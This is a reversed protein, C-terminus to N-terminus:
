ALTIAAHSNELRLLYYGNGMEEYTAGQAGTIASDTRLCFSQGRAAGDCDLYLRDGDRRWTYNLDEYSFVANQTNSLTKPQLYEVRSLVDTEFIGIQAKDQDWAATEEDLAIFRNVDFVHSVMGYASLVSAIEFLNGEEMRNGFTAGPFFFRDGDWHLANDDSLLGRVATINVGPLATLEEAFATGNMLTLGNIDYQTFTERFRALLNDNYLLSEGDRCDAAYVLEGEYQLASKGITNFLNDDIPPFGGEGSAVALISSTYRLDNRLSLGQFQAWVVDRVFSETSCGYLRMCLQDNVSTVMPFNDLFVAKIGLVPYVLDGALLGIASSLLGCCNTDSLFTGNILCTQGAGYDFTYLVPTQKEADRIYVCAKESVNIWTSLSYGDYTMRELQLPFLDGTFELDNYNERLSKEKIGLFPWLYSDTYAEPLGAAFLVRGGQEIFAGLELLDAYDGATDDCLIVIPDDQLLQADLRTAETYSVKWDSLLRVVNKYIDRYLDKDSHGTVVFHLPQPNIAGESAMPQALAEQSHRIGIHSAREENINYMLFLASVVLVISLVYLLRKISLM